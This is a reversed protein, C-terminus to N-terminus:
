AWQLSFAYYHLFNILTTCDQQFPFIHLSSVFLSEELLSYFWLRFGWLRVMLLLWRCDVVDGIKTGQWSSYSWDRCSSNYRRYDVTGFSWNSKTLRNIRNHEWITNSICSRYGSRGTCSEYERFINGNNQATSFRQVSRLSRETSKIGFGLYSWCGFFWYKIERWRDM